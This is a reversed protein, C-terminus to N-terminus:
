TGSRDGIKTFTLEGYAMLTRMLISNVQGCVIEAPTDLLLLKLLQETSFLLDNRNKEQAETTKTM